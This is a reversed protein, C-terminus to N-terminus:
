KKIETILLKENKENKKKLNKEKESLKTTENNM